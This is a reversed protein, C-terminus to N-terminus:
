QVDKSGKFMKFYIVNKVRYSEEGLERFEIISGELDEGRGITKLIGLIGDKVSNEYEM